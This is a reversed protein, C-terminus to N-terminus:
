LRWQGRYLTVLLLPGGLTATLMSVPLTISASVETILVVLLLVLAGTLASAPLILRNDFGLWLRLLHPVLLGLFAIAGAVAVAAGVGIAAAVLVTMTLRQPNVGASTATVDGGYLWNLKGAQRLQVAISALMFPASVFLITWDAQYLNGMLWFTLNRLSQADSFLYLWAIIAGSLTSIAIGALIVATTAGRLRAAIRYIAFTSVLAGTFCGLPLLYYVPLRGAVGPVLLLTAAVLSAGSTIGIIGPDALPNRLVVQLSGASVCLVAGVLVATLILPAHLNWFIHWNLASNDPAFTM